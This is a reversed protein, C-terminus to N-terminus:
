VEGKQKTCGRGLSELSEPDLFYYIVPTYGFVYESTPHQLGTVLSFLETKMQGIFM